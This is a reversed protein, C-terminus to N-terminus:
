EDNNTSGSESGESGAGASGGSSEGSPGNDAPPPDSEGTDVDPEDPEPEDPEATGPSNEDDNPPNPAPQETPEPDPEPSPSETPSPAAATTPPAPVEATTSIPTQTPLPEAVTPQPTIVPAPPAQPEPPPAAVVTPTVTPPPAAPLPGAIRTTVEGDLITLAEARMPTAGPTVLMGLAGVVTPLIETIIQALQPGSYGPLIELIYELLTVLEPFANPDVQGGGTGAFALPNDQSVSQISHWMDLSRVVDPLGYKNVLELLVDTQIVLTHDEFVRALHVLDSMRFAATNTIRYDM